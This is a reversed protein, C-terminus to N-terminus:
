ICRADQEDGRIVGSTLAAAIPTAGPGITRSPCRNYTYDTMFGLQENINFTV